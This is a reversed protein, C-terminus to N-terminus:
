AATAREYGPSADSDGIRGGGSSELDKAYEGWSRLRGLVKADEPKDDRPMVISTSGARNSRANDLVHAVSYFNTGRDYVGKRTGTIIYPEEKRKRRGVGGHNGRHRYHTHTLGYWGYNRAVVVYVECTLIAWLVATWLYYRTAAWGETLADNLLDLAVM